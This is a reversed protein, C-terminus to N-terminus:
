QRLVLPLFVHTVGVPSAPPPDPVAVQESPTDGPSITPASRPTKANHLRVIHTATRANSLTAAPNITIELQYNAAEYGFVEIQYVGSLSAIFSVSDLATGDNISYALPAQGATWDPPWVYIDPDGSAATVQVVLEAGAEIYQRYLHVGGTPVNIANPIYNIFDVAPAISINRAADVVWARM